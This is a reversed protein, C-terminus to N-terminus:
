KQPSTRGAPASRGLAALSAAVEGALQRNRIRALLVRRWFTAPHLDWGVTVRCGEGAPEVQWRWGTFSPNGDDTQTRFEFRGAEADIVEVRSRSLWKRGFVKFEVLWEVGPVLSDPLEVVRTMKNNWDPLHALDTIAAFAAGAGIPVVASSSGVMSPRGTTEMDSDGM